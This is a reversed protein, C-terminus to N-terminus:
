WSTARWRRSRCRPRRRISASAGRVARRRRPDPRHEARLDGGRDPRAVDDPHRARQRIGVSRRRPVPRRQGPRQGDGARRVPDHQPTGGPLRALGAAVRGAGRAGPRQVLGPHRFPLLRRRLLRGPHHARRGRRQVAAGPPCATALRRFRAAAGGLGPDAPRRPRRGAAAAGRSTPWCWRPGIGSQSRRAALRAGPHHVDVARGRAGGRRPRLDDDQQGPHPRSAVAGVRRAGLRCRRRM